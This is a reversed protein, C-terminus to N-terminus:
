HAIKLGGGLSSGEALLVSFYFLAKSFYCFVVSFFLFLDLLHFFAYFTTCSLVQLLVKLM